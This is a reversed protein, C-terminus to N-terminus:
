ANMAAKSNARSRKGIVQIKNLSSLGRGRRDVRQRGRAFQQRRWVVARSWKEDERLIRAASFAVIGVTWVMWIGAVRRLM